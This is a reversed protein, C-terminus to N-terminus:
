IRYEIFNTRISKDIYIKEKYDLFNLDDLEEVPELDEVEEEEFLSLEERPLIGLYRGALAQLSYKIPEGNYLIRECIMTDWVNKIFISYGLLIHKGEFKLNHGVKLVSEDELV